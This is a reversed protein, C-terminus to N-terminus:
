EQSILFLSDAYLRRYDNGTLKNLADLIVRYSDWAAIAADVQRTNLGHGYEFAITSAGEGEARNRTHMLHCRSKGYKDFAMAIRKVDISYEGYQKTAM